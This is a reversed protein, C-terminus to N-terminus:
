NAYISQAAPIASRVNAEAAATHAKSTFSLYSPVAIAVLIGLIVIVVLLEILTFGQESALRNKIKSIM